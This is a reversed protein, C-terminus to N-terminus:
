FGLHLYPEGFMKLRALDSAVLQKLSELRRRSNDNVLNFGITKNGRLDKAETKLNEALFHGDNARLSAVLVAATEKM